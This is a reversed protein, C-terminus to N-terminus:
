TVQLILYTVYIIYVIILFVGEVRSIINRKRGTFAFTFVILSSFICMLIDLTATPSIFPLPTIVASLGLIFFINFINSGVVNGIAIDSNKKYAATASTALEPVSTGAAVITLGVIADSLGAFKAITKAGAVLWESGFYLFVLGAVIYLAAKSIPMDPKDKESEHIERELADQDKPIAKSTYVTYYMFVAFFCLFVMGDIRTIQNLAGGDFFIDNATFGVVLAALLSLPIEIWVSNSQVSVPYIIASIGLIIFVNFINSGVINGIAIDTAGTISASLNVALEPSSTGFAVVTLGIILDSIGFKKAIQSSGDVLINSGIVAAVVGLLILSISWFLEM